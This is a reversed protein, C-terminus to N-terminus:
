DEGDLTAQTAGGGRSIPAFSRRCRPHQLPNADAEDLTWISGDAEACEADEDGDSVEVQEIGGDGYALLSAKNYAMSAETKVITEARYGRAQAFVGTVGGYGDAPVGNSIQQVTYGRDLGEVLTDNLATRTTQNIGTVRSALQDSIHALRDSYLDYHPPLVGVFVAGKYAAQAADTHLPALVRLLARNEVAPDWLDDIALAAM